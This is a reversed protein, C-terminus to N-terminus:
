TAKEKIEPKSGCIELTELKSIDVKKLLSMLHLAKPNMIYGEQYCNKCVLGGSPIDITVFDHDNGCNTCTTIGENNEFGCKLCKM